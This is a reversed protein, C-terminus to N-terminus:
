RPPRGLWGRHVFFGLSLLASLSMAGLAMFYGFPHRLEPMNWPSITGDFNMGYLSSIFTMPIFVSGIVTLVKMVENMKHSSLSLHTEILGDAIERYSDLMDAIQGAHDSVDRLHIQTETSVLTTEEHMLAAVAERLPMITRRLVLLDRKIDHIRSVIDDAPNALVEDELADLRDGYASLAPFYHDTVADVLAYALYGPGERRMRGIAGRLRRRVPDLSDGPYGEQFTLVFRDGVVVGLQETELREVLQVMRVVIFLYEPFVEVKARQDVHVLDELTLDHLGFRQGFRRILETDGLGEVNVWTVPWKDLFPDLDAVDSVTTEELGDPGFAIVTMDPPPSGPEVTLTGPPAGPEETRAIRDERDHPPPRVRLLGSRLGRRLGRKLRKLAM